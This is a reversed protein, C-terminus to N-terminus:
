WFLYYSDSYGRISAGKPVTVTLLFSELNLHQLLVAFECVHRRTLFTCPRVSSANRGQDSSSGPENSSNGERAGWVM